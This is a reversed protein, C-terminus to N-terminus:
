LNTIFDISKGLSALVLIRRKSIMAICEAKGRSFSGSVGGKKCSHSKVREKKRRERKGERKYDGKCRCFVGEKGRGEWQDGIKM